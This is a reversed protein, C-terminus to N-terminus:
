PCDEPPVTSGCINHLITNHAIEFDITANPSVLQGFLFTFDVNAQLRVHPVVPAGAYLGGLNAASNDMACIQIDIGGGALNAPTWYALLNSAGSVSGTMAISVADQVDAANVFYCGGSCNGTQPDCTACGGPVAASCDVISSGLYRTADRVSQNVVHYDHLARGLDIAGFCLVMLLPLVLAFEVGANGRWSRGFRRLTRLKRLEM